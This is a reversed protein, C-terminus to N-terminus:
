LHNGIYEHRNLADIGFRAHPEGIFIVTALVAAANPRDLRALLWRKAAM